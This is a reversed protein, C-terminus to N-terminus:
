TFFITRGVAQHKRLNFRELWTLTLDNDTHFGTANVERIRKNNLAFVLELRVHGERRAALDGTDDFLDTLPDLMDLDSFMDDSKGAPSTKGFFDGCICGFQDFHGRAHVKDGRGSEGQDIAGRMVREFIAGLDFWAFGQEHETCSATNAKCGDLQTFDHARM